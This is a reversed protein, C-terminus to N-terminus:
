TVAHPAGNGRSNIVQEFLNEYNRLMVDLSFKEEVRKRGAGGLRLAVEKDELISLIARALADGDAPPVLLGTEGHVVVEPNGGVRTAVVPKSSAMYELIVNSFGESLSSLVAVNFLSILDATDERGGIFHLNQSIGMEQGYRKLTGITFDSEKRDYGIMVFQANQNYRHIICAAQLFYQYGKIKHINAVLGVVPSKPPIGLERELGMGDNSKGYDMVNIANYITFVKKEPFWRRRIVEKKVANSVAIVAHFFRGVFRYALQHHLRTKFGMDRRASIIPINCLRSLVLGYFDSSEHYTVILSIKKETVFKRLFGLNRLGSITYIAAKNLNIISFGQDRLREVLDGSVFCAVHLGFKDKNIGTMLQTINREAGGVRGFIDTLLLIEHKKNM